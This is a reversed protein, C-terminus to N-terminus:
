NGKPSGVRAKPSRSRAEATALRIAQQRAAARCMEDACAYHRHSTGIIHELAEIEADLRTRRVAIYKLADQICHHDAPSRTPPSKEAACILENIGDSGAHLWPCECFFTIFDLSTCLNQKNKNNLARKQVSVLLKAAEEFDQRKRQLHNRTSRNNTINATLLSRETM